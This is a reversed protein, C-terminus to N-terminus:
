QVFIQRLFVRLLDYGDWIPSFELAKGFPVIRDIGALQSTRLWDTLPNSNEFGTYAVTQIKRSLIPKLQELTEIHTEYFLGSGCHLDAAILPKVENIPLHIRVVNNHTSKEISCNPFRIAILDSAVRKNVFDVAMLDSTKRAIVESVLNWFHPKANTVSTEEGLWVILRPSSCAMQGFWYADNFFQEAVKLQEAEKVANWGEAHILSFSFKNAFAIETATPPLPLQRINFVTADGGWIVRVDCLSSFYKSIAANHEYRVLLVRQAIPRWEAESLLDRLLQILRDLQPTSRSSLRLINKNGCMMSLLWSYIFISDVNAPAIHFVTGRPQFLQQETSAKFQKHLQALNAKRMWFGLAVLEPYERVDPNRLLSSSLADIFALTQEAFPALPEVAAVVEASIANNIVSTYPLASM